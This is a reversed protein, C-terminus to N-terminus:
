RGHLFTQKLKATRTVTLINKTGKKEVEKKRVEEKRKTFYFLRM